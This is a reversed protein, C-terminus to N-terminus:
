SLAICITSLSSYSNIHVTSKTSYASFNPRSSVPHRIMKREVDIDTGTCLRKGSSGNYAM